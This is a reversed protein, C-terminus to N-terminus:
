AAEQVAQDVVPERQVQLFAAEQLGPDLQKAMRDAALANTRGRVIDLFHRTKGVKSRNLIHLGVQAKAAEIPTIDAVEALARAVHAIGNLDRFKRFAGSQLVSPRRGALRLPEVYACLM